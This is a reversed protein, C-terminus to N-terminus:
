LGLSASSRPGLPAITAVYEAPPGKPPIRRGQERASTATAGAAAPGRPRGAPVVPAAAKAVAPAAPTPLVTGVAAPMQDKAASAAAKAVAPARDYALRHQRSSACEHDEFCAQCIQLRCAIFNTRGCSARHEYTVSRRCLQCTLFADSGDEECAQACAECCYRSSDFTMWPRSDLPERSGFEVDDVSAAAGVAMVPPPTHPVYPVRQGQAGGSATSTPPPTPPEEGGTSDPQKRIKNSKPAKAKMSHEKAVLPQLESLLEMIIHYKRAIQAETSESDSDKLLELEYATLTRIPAARYNIFLKVSAADTLLLRAQDPDMSVLSFPVVRRAAVTPIEVPALTQAAKALQLHASLTKESTWGGAFLLTHSVSHGAELLQTAGGVRLTSPTINPGGGLKIFVLLKRIGSPPSV